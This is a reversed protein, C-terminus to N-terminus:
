FLVDTASVNCAVAILSNALLSVDKYRPPVIMHHENMLSYNSYHVANLLRLLHCVGSTFGILFIVAKFLM